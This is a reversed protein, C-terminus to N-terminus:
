PRGLKKFGELVKESDIDGSLFQVSLLSTARGITVAKDMSSEYYRIERSGVRKGGSKAEIWPPKAQDNKDFAMQVVVRDGEPSVRYDVVGDMEFGAEHVVLHQGKLEGPGGTPMEDGRPGKVAGLLQEGACTEFEHALAAVWLPRGGRGEVPAVGVPHRVCQKDIADGLIERALDRGAFSDALEVRRGSDMDVVVLEKTISPHAGGLFSRTSFFWSSRGGRVGVPLIGERYYYVEAMDPDAKLIGALDPRDRTREPLLETQGKVGKIVLGALKSGKGGTKEPPQVTNVFLDRVTGEDTVHAIGTTKRVILDGGGPRASILFSGDTTRVVASPRVPGVKPEPMVVGEPLGEFPTPAPQYPTKERCAVISLSFAIVLIASIARVLLKM